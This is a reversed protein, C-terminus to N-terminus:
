DRLLPLSFGTAFDVSGPLVPQRQQVPLLVLLREIARMVIPPRM